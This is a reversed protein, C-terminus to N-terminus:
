RDRPRDARFHTQSHTQSQSERDSRGLETVQLDGNLVTFDFVTYPAVVVVRFVTNSTGCDFCRLITYSYREEFYKQLLVTDPKIVEFCLLLLVTDLKRM